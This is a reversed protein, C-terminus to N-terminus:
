SVRVKNIVMCLSKLFCYSVPYLSLHFCHLDLDAPKQLLWSILIWVTKWVVHCQSNMIILVFIFFLIANVKKISTGPCSFLFKSSTWFSILGPRVLRAHYKWVGPYQVYFLKVSVSFIFLKLCYLSLCEIPKGKM